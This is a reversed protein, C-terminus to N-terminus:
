SKLKPEIQEAAAKLAQSPSEKGQVALQIHASVQEAVEAWQPIVPLLQTYAVMRQFTLMHASANGLTVSRRAPPALYWGPSDEGVERGTLYRALKMAAAMRSKDAQKRVNYAEL